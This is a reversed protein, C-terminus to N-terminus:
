SKWKKNQSKQKENITKQKQKKIKCKWIKNENKGMKRKNNNKIKKHYCDKGEQGDQSGGQNDQANTNDQSLLTQCVAVCVCLWMSKINHCDRGLPCRGHFCLSIISIRPLPPLSDFNLINLFKSDEIHFYPIQKANCFMEFKTAVCSVKPELIVDAIESSVRQNLQNLPHFLSFDASTISSCKRVEEWRPQDLHRYSVKIWDYRDLL